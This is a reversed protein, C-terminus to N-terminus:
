MSSLIAPALGPQRAAAHAPNRFRLEGEAVADPAGFMEFRSTCSVAVVRRAAATTLFRRVAGELELHEGRLAQWDTRDLDDLFIALIGPHRGTLRQAAAETARRSVAGAIENERGARAAMAFVSGGDRGTTVALHAEPGFLARLRAPLGGPMDQLQAGALMLPDLKLVAQAGADQRREASLLGSIRRQLEALQEAGSIGEPLTMKLLYRGPHAALWTQLEPDIADVLAWWDGRHVPRGEEASVTECVLEATAGGREALIDYPADAALGDFRLTFGRQRLLAATRLLHFLPILTAPGTLGALIRDQLTRRGAAPLTEALTVAEQALLCLRQETPTARAAPRGEALRSLILELAHRQQAARGSRSGPQARLGLEAVRASWQAEGCLAIFANLAPLEAQPDAFPM